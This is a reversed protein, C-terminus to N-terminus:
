EFRNLNHTQKTANSHRLPVTRTSKASHLIADHPLTRKAGFVFFLTSHLVLYISFRSAIATEKCSSKTLAASPSQWVFLYIDAVHHTSNM